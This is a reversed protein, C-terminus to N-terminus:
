FVQEAPEELRQGDDGPPVQAVGELEAEAGSAPRKLGLKEYVDDLVRERV